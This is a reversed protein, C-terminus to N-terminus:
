ARADLLAKYLVEPAMRPSGEKKAEAEHVLEVIKQNCPAQLGRQEALAVIEGNLFDIETPRRLHLDEWMSSRAEADIQIMKSAVFMFLWNPLRLVIPILWPMVKGARRMQIGAAKTTALAESVCLAMCKRYLPHLLQERVPVGSLANTANNLNLMLKSWLIGKIDPHHEVPLAADEFAGGWVEEFSPAKEVILHGETGCHFHGDEKTLVNFPVMGGLVQFSPLHKRLVDANRVGNQFSVVLASPTAHKAIEKAADETHRSKVTVLILSAEAMREYATLYEVDGPALQQDRGRWDTLHLGHAEIVKQLRPRGFFLVTYGAASLAGGVYCGIAGAGFVAIKGLDKAM